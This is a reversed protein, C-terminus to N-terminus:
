SFKDLGNYYNILEIISLFMLIRDSPANWHQGSSSWISIITAKEAFGDLLVLM